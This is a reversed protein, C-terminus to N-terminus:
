YSARTQYGSDRWAKGGPWTAIPRIAVLGRFGHPLCRKPRRNVKELVLLVLKVRLVNLKRKSTM